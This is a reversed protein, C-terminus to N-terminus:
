AVSLRLLSKLEHLFVGYHYPLAPYSPVFHLEQYRSSMRILTSIQFSTGSPGGIYRVVMLLRCSNLETIPTRVAFHVSTDYIPTHPLKSRKRNLCKQCLFCAFLSIFPSNSIFITTKSAIVHFIIGQSPPLSLSSKSNYGSGSSITESHIGPDPHFALFSHFISTGQTSTARSDRM